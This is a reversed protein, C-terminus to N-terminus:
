LSEEDTIEVVEGLPANLVNVWTQGPALPVEEGEVAPVLRGDQNIWDVDYMEGGRLLYGRGGEQLSIDRRGEDDIVNHSASMIFINEAGIRESTREDVTEDGDSSRMYAEETEDFTYTVNYQGQPYTIEAEFAESSSVDPEDESFSLSNIAREQEIGEERIGEELHDASIYSNHPAQRHAEREFLTGEYHLGNLSPIEGAGLRSLASPSGGHTVFVSDFGRAVDIHYDRASRVPGFVEPWESQYLAVMRTVEGEALMEYVVDAQNLGSQPRADPHNNITVAVPREAAAEENDAPLGTLPYEYESSDDEVTDETIESPDDRVELNSAGSAAEEAETQDEDESCATLLLAFAAPIIFFRKM